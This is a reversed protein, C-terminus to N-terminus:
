WTTTQRKKRRYTKAIDLLSEARTLATKSCSKAIITVAEPPISDLLLKANVKDMPCVCYKLSASAGTDGMQGYLYAALPSNIIDFKSTSTRGFKLLGYVEENRDEGSISKGVVGLNPIMSGRRNNKAEAISLKTAKATASEVDDHIEDEAVAPLSGRLSLEREIGSDRRDGSVDVQMGRVFMILPADGGTLEALAAVVSIGLLKLQLYNTSIRLNAKAMATLYEMEQASPENQFSAYISTPDLVQLFNLRKTIPPM